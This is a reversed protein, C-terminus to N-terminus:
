LLSEWGPTRMGGPTLSCAEPPLCFKFDGWFLGMGFDRIWILGSVLPPVCLTVITNIPYAFSYFLIKPTRWYWFTSFGQVIVYIPKLIWFSPYKTNKGFFKPTSRIVNKWFEYKKRSKQERSLNSKKVKLNWEKL